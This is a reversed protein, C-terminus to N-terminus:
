DKHCVVKEFCAKPSPIFFKVKTKSSNQCQKIINHLILSINIKIIARTVGKIEYNAIFNITM